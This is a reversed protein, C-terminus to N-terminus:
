ERETQQCGICEGCNDDYADQLTAKFDSLSTGGSWSARGNAGQKWDNVAVGWSDDLSREGGMTYGHIECEELVGITCLYQIACGSRDSQDM